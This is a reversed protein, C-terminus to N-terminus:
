IMSDAVSEVSLKICGVCIVMEINKYLDPKMMFTRILKKSKLEKVEKLSLSSTEEVLRDLFVRYQAQINMLPVQRLNRDLAHATKAFEMSELMWVLQVGRNKIKVALTTIDTVTRSAEVWKKDEDDFVFKLEDM